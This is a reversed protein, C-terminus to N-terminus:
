PLLHRQLSHLITQTNQARASSPSIFCLGETFGPKIRAGCCRRTLCLGGRVGCRRTLCLGGGVCVEGYDLANYEVTTVRAAGAALALSEFWPEAAGVVLVHPGSAESEGASAHVRKLPHQQLAEIVRQSLKDQQSVARQQRAQRAHAHNATPHSRSQAFLPTEGKLAQAAQNIYGQIEERSFKYHTGKGENSDDVILEHWAARGGLSFERRQDEDLTTVLAGQPKAQRYVAFLGCPDRCLADKISSHQELLKPNWQLGLSRDLQINTLGECSQGRDQHDEWQRAPLGEDIKYNDDCSQTSLAESRALALVCLLLSFCAYPKM